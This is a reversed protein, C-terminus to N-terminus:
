DPTKTHSGGVDEDRAISEGKTVTYVNQKNAEDYKFMDFGSSIKLYPCQFQFSSKLRKTFM